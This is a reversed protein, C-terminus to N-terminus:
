SCSLSANPLVETSLSTIENGAVSGTQYRPHTSAYSISYTIQLVNNTPTYTRTVTYDRGDVTVTTPNDSYDENGDTNSDALLVTDRLRTGYTKASCTTSDPAGNDLVFAEYRILELDQQVWNIAEQKDQAKIRLYSALVVTQLAGLFFVSMAIISILAEIITFGEQKDIKQNSLITDRYLHIVPYLLKNYM